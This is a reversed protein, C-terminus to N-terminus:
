RINPFWYDAASKWGFAARLASQVPGLGGFFDAYVYAVIYTPFALPLPLLWLMATRGPFEHATVLWATGVGAIVAIAAVGALLLVTNLTAPPIVHALLHPWLESDGGLAILGLNFLPAAVLAAVAILYATAVPNSFRLVPRALAPASVGPVSM